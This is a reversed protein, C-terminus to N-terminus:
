LAWSAELFSDDCHVVLMMTSWAGGVSISSLSKVRQGGFWLYTVTPRSLHMAFITSVQLAPKVM